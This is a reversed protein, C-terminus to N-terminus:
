GLAGLGAILADLGFGFHRATQATRYEARDAWLHPYRHRDDTVPALRRRPGSTAADHLQVRALVYAFVANVTAV